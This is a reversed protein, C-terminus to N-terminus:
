NFRMTKQGGTFHLTALDNQLFQVDSDDNIVRFLFTDDAYQVIKSRLHLHLYNVYINFFCPGWCQARLCVPSFLFLILCKAM